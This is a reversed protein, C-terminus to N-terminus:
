LLLTSIVGEKVFLEKEKKLKRPHILNQQTKIEYLKYLKRLM